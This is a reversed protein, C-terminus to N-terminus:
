KCAFWSGILRTLILCNVVLAFKSTYDHIRNVNISEHVLGLSSANLVLGICDNIEKDDDSTM